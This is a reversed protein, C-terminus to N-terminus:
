CGDKMWKGRVTGISIELIVLTQGPGGLYGTSGGGDGEMAVVLGGSRSINRLTIVKYRTRNGAVGGRGAM